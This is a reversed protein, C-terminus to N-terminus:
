RDPDNGPYSPREGTLTLRLRFANVIEDDILHGIIEAVSWEGEAPRRELAAVDHGRVLERIRDPTRAIIELPDRDGIVALLEDRYTQPAAAPDSLGIAEIDRM